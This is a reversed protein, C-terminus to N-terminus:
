NLTLGVQNLGTRMEVCTQSMNPMHGCNTWLKESEHVGRKLARVFIVRLSPDCYNSKLKEANHLPLCPVSLVPKSM